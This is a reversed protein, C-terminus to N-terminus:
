EKVLQVTNFQKGEMITVFYIGASLSTIDITENLQLMSTSILKGDYSFITVTTNEKVGQITLRDNCPNPYIQLKVNLNESVASPSNIDATQVQSVVGGTKTVKLIPVNHTTSIWEYTISEPRPLAFGFGTGFLSTYVSDTANVVSRVRLVDFNQGWINLTGWGDCVYSRTQDTGYYGVTPIDFSMISASNGATEYTLPLNYLVDPANMHAALPIGNISAGMGTVSFVNGSNKHYQFANEFSITGISAQQVGNAYESNHEPDFPNNFLFQYALPTDAVDYCTVGANLALPQLTAETFTWTHNAGTPEPDVTGIFQANRTILVDNAHPLNASVISIQASTLLAILLISLTFITKMNNEFINHLQEKQTLAQLYVELSLHRQYFTLM